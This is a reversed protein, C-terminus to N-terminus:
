KKSLSDTLQIVDKQLRILNEMPSTPPLSNVQYKEIVPLTRTIKLVTHLDALSISQGQIFQLLAKHRADSTKFRQRSNAILAQIKTKLISDKLQGAPTEAAAYFNNNKSDYDNFLSTSDVSPQKLNDIEKELQKLASDKEALEAYLNEVLDDYGRKSFIEM